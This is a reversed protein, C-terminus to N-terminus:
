ALFDSSSSFFLRFCFRRFFLTWNLRRTSFSFLDPPDNRCACWVVSRRSSNENRCDVFFANKSKMFSSSLNDNTWAREMWESELTSKMRWNFNWLFEIEVVSLLYEREFKRTADRMFRLRAAASLTLQIDRAREDEEWNATFVYRRSCLSFTVCIEIKWTVDMLSIERKALQFWKFRGVSAEVKDSSSYVFLNSSKMNM